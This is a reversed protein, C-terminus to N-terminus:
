IDDEDGTRPCELRSIRVALKGEHSVLKGAGIATRGIYITVPADAGEELAIVSGATLAQLHQRSIKRSGLVVTVPKRM